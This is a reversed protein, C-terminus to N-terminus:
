PLYSLPNVTEGHLRVEFHCHPGTSYGTSGAHAIVQGKDVAQGESVLVATNHGYLTVLGGGHDIMVANGYGGMWGAYIVTGSDAALIPDGYDAAIDIGSHFIQTGFIPHTRWGYPSTIEGHIPWIFRGSGNVSGLTGSQEWNKIMSAINNSTEMLDNYEQELRNQEALAKDYLARREAAKAEVTKKKADVDAHVKDLQKKDEELAEQQSNLNRKQEELKSLLSIDRAIIRQLLYMRSSFDSFDKAGLLVDLYNIQGNIYIERLRKSYIKKTKELEKQNKEITIKTAKIKLELSSQKDEVAQLAKQAEALQNQAVMLEDIASKVEKKKSERQADKNQLQQQVDELKAKEEELSDAYTPLAVTFIMAVLVIASIFKRIVM